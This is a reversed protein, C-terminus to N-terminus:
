FDILLTVPFFISRFQSFCVARNETNAVALVTDLIMMIKSQACFDYNSPELTMRDYLFGHQDTDLWQFHIIKSVIELNINEPGYLEFIM